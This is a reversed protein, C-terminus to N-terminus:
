SPVEVGYAAKAARPSLHGNRVDARVLEPDREEVAVVGLAWLVDSALEAEVAPVTLVLAIV